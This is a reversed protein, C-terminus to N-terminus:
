PKVVRKAAFNRPMQAAPSPLHNILALEAMPISSPHDRQFEALTMARPLRVVALRDPQRALAARNTLRAFSEITRRFEREYGTLKDAQTYALIQYTQDNHSIFGAVGGLQGQETRVQFPGTIAALGNIKNTSRRGSTVGEQAFFAAAATELTGAVVALRILADNAPSGAVVAQALNRTRWASPLDFRFAMAPHLFRNDEFYGNRPNVGYTLGDIRRLYDEEGIRLATASAPLRVLRQEIRKIREAPNPHSAQWNPVPTNGALQASQQLAAFVNVMQRVDYQQGLAYGYGLDDAQREADRGYSLFLLQLGGAALEGFQAIQPSLISGVGLGIQALQARSMMSVSHRATVHGIEHGLVSVLEAENRMLVLLGRTIFIFGGPAAFANPTPDDVVRFRWPLDPRESGAALQAGLQQVYSQLQADDVLGLQAEASAATRRGIDIEQNQTVLALERNGSVPNVACASLLVAVALFRTMPTMRKIPYRPVKSLRRSRTQVSDRKSTVHTLTCFTAKGDTPM